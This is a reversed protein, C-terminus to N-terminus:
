IIYKQKLYSLTPDIQILVLFFISFDSNVSDFYIIKEWFYAKVGRCRRWKVFRIHM